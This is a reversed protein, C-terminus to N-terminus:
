LPWPEDALAPSGKRQWREVRFEVEDHIVQGLTFDSEFEPFFTDGEVTRKVRTLYLVDCRPLLQRYIEAGGSVWYPAPLRALETDLSALDCYDPVDYPMSIARRTIMVTKRGPLAKGISEFTKRGMILTTGMTKHKFWRFDAPIHWPLKGEVGIVRNESMAAMAYLIPM